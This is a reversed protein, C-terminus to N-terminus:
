LILGSTAEVYAKGVAVSTMSTFVIGGVYFTMSSPDIEGTVCVGSGFGMGQDGNVLMKPKAITLTTSNEEVYKGIYEGAVTVVSIIDNKKYSM